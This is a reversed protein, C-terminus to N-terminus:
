ALPRDLEALKGDHLFWARNFLGLDLPNPLRIDAPGPLNARAPDYSRDIQCIFVLIVGRARAFHALTEIQAQLPPNTRRQDLLQLYDVVALTGAPATALRAIIHDAAITDACDIALSGAHLALPGSMAALHAAIDAPTYDLSFIHGAKGSAIAALALQIALITKGQRPRAAVLAMDGPLLSAYLSEPGAMTAPNHASLLSWSAYGQTAAVADLAAHLPISRARAQERAARKLRHIPASLTM